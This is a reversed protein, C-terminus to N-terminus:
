KVLKIIQMVAQHARWLADDAEEYQEETVCEGGVHWCRNNTDWGTYKHTMEELGRKFRYAEFIQEYICGYSCHSM